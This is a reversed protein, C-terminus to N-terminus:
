SRSWSPVPWSAPGAPPSTTRTAPSGCPTLGHRRALPLLLRCANAAYRHGRHQPHVGYGIHGAYLVLTDTNGVRLDISGIQEEQGALTMKFKYAPVLGRAPNGPYRQALVLELDGDLLKGPDHFRFTCTM